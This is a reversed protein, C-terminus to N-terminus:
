VHARGIQEGAVRGVMQAMLAKDQALEALEHQGFIELNGVLDRPRRATAMGNVDRVIPADPVTREITFRAPEPSFVDVVLSITTATHLVNTVVDKHDKQAAEGIPSIDLVYRLSEIITSKGTGRGGILATLDESIPITQGNMFGGTWSIERLLVRSTSAPDKLSVRTQPTRLAHMLGALSPESMKFWSSGGETALAEPSTIDDAHIAVLPHKRRFPPKNSLVERQEGALPASPTVGLALIDQNKVMRELPKGVVRHLLGSNAVNVHAPIVLAGRKAMEAVIDFYSKNAVAHPDGPELGCAGIALTIDELNTGNEFIVLLHIGESTNAEFGPLAVIGRMKADSILGAGSVASWHDTVALLTIGEKVCADLLAANYAPESPYKKSPSPNGKYEYPNVQLAARVWYAWPPSTTTTISSFNGM